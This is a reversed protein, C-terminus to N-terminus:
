FLIMIIFMLRNKITFGSNLLYDNLSTTQEFAYGNINTQAGGGYINAKRSM